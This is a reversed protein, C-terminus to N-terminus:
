AQLSVLESHLRENTAKLVVIDANQVLKTELESEVDLLRRRLDQVEQELALKARKETQLELM